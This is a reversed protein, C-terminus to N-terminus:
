RLEQEEIMTEGRPNRCPELKPHAAIQANTLSITDFHMM